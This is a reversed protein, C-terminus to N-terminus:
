GLQFLIRNWNDEGAGDVLCCLGAGEHRRRASDKGEVETMVGDTLGTRVRIPRLGTATQEWLLGQKGRVPQGAIHEGPDVDKALRDRADPAV